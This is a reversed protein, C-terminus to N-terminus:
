PAPPRAATLYARLAEATLRNREARDARDDVRHPDRLFFAAGYDDARVDLVQEWLRQKASPGVFVLVDGARVVEDASSPGVALAMVLAESDPRRAIRLGGGADYGAEAVLREIMQRAAHTVELWASATVPGELM